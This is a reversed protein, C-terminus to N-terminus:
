TFILSVYYIQFHFPTVNEPDFAAQDYERIRIANSMNLKNLRIRTPNKSVVQDYVMM